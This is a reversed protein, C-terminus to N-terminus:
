ERNRHGGSILMGISVVMLATGIAM